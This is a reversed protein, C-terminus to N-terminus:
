FANAFRRREDSRDIVYGRNISASANTPLFKALSRGFLPDSKSEAFSCKTGNTSARDTRCIVCALEMGNIRRYPFFNCCLTYEIFPICILMYICKCKNFYM